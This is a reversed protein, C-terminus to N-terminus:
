PKHSHCFPCTCVHSATSELFMYRLVCVHLQQDVLDWHLQHESADFDECEYTHRLANVTAGFSPALPYQVASFRFLLMLAIMVELFVEEEQAWTAQPSTYLPKGNLEVVENTVNMFKYVVVLLEYVKELFVTNFGALQDVYRCYGTAPLIVHTLLYIAKKDNAGLCLNDQIGKLPRSGVLIKKLSQSIAPLWKNFYFKELIAETARFPNHGCCDAGAFWRVFVHCVFEMHADYDSCEGGNLLSTNKNNNYVWSTTMATDLLQPRDGAIWRRVVEFLFVGTPNSNHIHKRNVLYRECFTKFTCQEIDIVCTASLVLLFFCSVYNANLSIYRACATSLLEFAQRLFVYKPARLQM